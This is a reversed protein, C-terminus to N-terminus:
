GSRRGAIMLIVYTALTLGAVAYLIDDPTFNEVSVLSSVFRNVYSM